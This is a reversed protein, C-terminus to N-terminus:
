ASHRQVVKSEARFFELIIRCKAGKHNLRAKDEEDGGELVM